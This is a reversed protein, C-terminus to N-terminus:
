RNGKAKCCTKGAESMFYVALSTSISDQGAQHKLHNGPSLGKGVTEERVWRAVKM